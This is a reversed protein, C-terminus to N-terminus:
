QKYSLYYVVLRDFKIEKWFGSNASLGHHFGRSTVTALRRTSVRNASNSALSSLVRSYPKMHKILPLVMSIYPPISAYEM